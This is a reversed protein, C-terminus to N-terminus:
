LPEVIRQIEDALTTPNFPKNILGAAGLARLAALEVPESQATLFVVPIDRTAPDSRLARLTAPGDMDPMLVDLLIVQPNQARALEIGQAGSGALTTHWGALDRLSVEAIARIDAQDDIVLITSVDM